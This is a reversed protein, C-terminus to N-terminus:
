SNGRRYDLPRIACFQRVVALLELSVFHARMDRKAMEDLCFDLGRLLDEDWEHPARTIGRPIAGALPSTESGALLRVNNVGIKKLQDLERVFRQRGGPLAADCLYCGFWANAGVYFYPKGRLEFKGHRVRVFDGPDTKRASVTACGAAIFPLALATTQLFHRRSTPLPQTQM